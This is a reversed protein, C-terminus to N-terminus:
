ERSGVDGSRLLGTGASAVTHDRLWRCLGWKMEAENVSLYSLSLDTRHNCRPTSVAAEPSGHEWAGKPPSLRSKVTLPPGEEGGVQFRGM